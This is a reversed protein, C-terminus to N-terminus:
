DGDVIYISFIPISGILLSQCHHFLVFRKRIFDKEESDVSILPIGWDLRATLNDELQLRLGLGISLLINSNLEIETDERGSDNWANGFDVFPTM